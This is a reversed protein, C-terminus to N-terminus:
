LRDLDTLLQFLRKTWQSSWHFSHKITLPLNECKWELGWFFRSCLGVATSFLRSYREEAPIVVLFRQKRHTSQIFAACCGSVLFVKFTAVWSTMWRTLTCRSRQLHSKHVFSSANCNASYAIVWNVHWASFDSGNGPSSTDNVQFGHYHICANPTKCFLLTSFVSSEFVYHGRGWQAWSSQATLGKSRSIREWSAATHHEGWLCPFLALLVFVHARPPKGPPGTNLFGGQLALSVSEIGPGPLNWM